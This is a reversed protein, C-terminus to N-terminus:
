KDHRHYFAQYSPKLPLLGQNLEYNSLTETWWLHTCDSSMAAEGYPLCWTNSLAGAPVLIWCFKCPRVELSDLWTRHGLPKVGDWLIAVLQPGHAWVHSGMSSVWVSHHHRLRCQLQLYSFHPSYTHTQGMKDNAKVNQKYHIRGRKRRGNEQHKGDCFKKCANGVTM